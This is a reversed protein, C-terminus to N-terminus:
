FETQDVHRVRDHCNRDPVSGPPTFALMRTTQIDDRFPSLSFSRHDFDSPQVDSPKEKPSQSKEGGDWSDTPSLWYRISCYRLAIRLFRLPKQFRLPAFSGDTTRFGKLLAIINASTAYHFASGDWLRV